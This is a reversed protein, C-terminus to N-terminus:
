GFMLALGFLGVMVFSIVLKLLTGFLLGLWTGVGVHASRLVSNGSALEGLLAGVFPGFLLGPVGFFMGILTGLSAGWLALRSAGVRRAGLASAIFDVIVGISGLAGIILLWWLGLHRYHDVAAVLWIGGFIMPIGPLTPLVAGAMGGVILLAALVYLAIDM